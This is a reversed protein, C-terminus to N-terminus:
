PMQNEIQREVQFHLSKLIRATDAGGKFDNPQLLGSDPRDYGHAVGIIAKADYLRERYSLFWDRAEGFGYKSLFADRGLQDFENIARQVGEATVDRLAM